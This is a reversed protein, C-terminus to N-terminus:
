GESKSDSGDSDESDRESEIQQRSKIFIRMEGITGIGLKFMLPLDEKVYIQMNKSLGAIKMLQTLQQTNFSAKYETDIKSDYNPAEGDQEHENFSVERSYLGGGDCSFNISSHTALIHISNGITAMDKCMKQYESSTIVYPHDYGEPLQIEMSQVNLIKVFSSTVRNNQIHEVKIGLHDPNEKDIFITVSDKKKISKLMKYLHSINIGINMPETCKYNKLNERRLFLDILIFKQGDMTNLRIGESNIEFCVSKLCRQLLEALVKITHAEETKFRFVISSM